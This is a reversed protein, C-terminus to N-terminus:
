TSEEDATRPWGLREALLSALESAVEAAIEEGSAGTWPRYGILEGGLRVEYPDPIFDGPEVTVILPAIHTREAM